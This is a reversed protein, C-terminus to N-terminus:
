GLGSEDKRIWILDDKKSSKEIEKSVFVEFDYLFADKNKGLADDLQYAALVQKVSRLERILEPFSFRYEDAKVIMLFDIGPPSSFLPADDYSRNNVLYFTCQLSEHQEFVYVSFGKTSKAKASFYEMDPARRFDYGLHHNLLWCFRYDRESCVVGVIRFESEFQLKFLTKKAM